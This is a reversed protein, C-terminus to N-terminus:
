GDEEQGEGGEEGEEGRKMGETDSGRGGEPARGRGGEPARGRGEKTAWRRSCSGGAVDVHEQAIGVEVLSLWPRTSWPHRRVGELDTSWVSSEISKKTGLTRTTYTCV